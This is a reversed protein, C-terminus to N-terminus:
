PEIRCEGASFGDPDAGVTGPHGPHTHKVERRVVHRGNRWEFTVVGRLRYIEGEPPPSIAFNWGSERRTAAGVSRFGSSSTADGPAWDGADPDFYEVQFRMYMCEGPHGSGPMSARIGITDPYKETDCINITAWTRLTSV